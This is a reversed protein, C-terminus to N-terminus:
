VLSNKYTHWAEVFRKYTDMFQIYKPENEYDSEKDFYINRDSKITESKSWWWLGPYTDTETEVHSFKIKCIESWFLLEPIKSNRIIYKFQAKIEHGIKIEPENIMTIVDLDLHVGDFDFARVVINTSTSM